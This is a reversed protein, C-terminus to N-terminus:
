HFGAFCLPDVGSPARVTPVRSAPCACPVMGQLPSVSGCCAPTCLRAWGGMETPCWAQACVLLTIAKKRRNIEKAIQPAIKGFNDMTIKNLLAQM